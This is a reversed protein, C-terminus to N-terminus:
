PRIVLKTIFLFISIFIGAVIAVAVGIFTGVFLVALGASVVLDTQWDYEAFFKIDIKLMLIYLAVATLLGLVLIEM